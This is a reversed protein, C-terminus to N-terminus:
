KKQKHHHYATFCYSFKSFLKDIKKWYVSPFGEPFHLECINEVKAWILNVVRLVFLMLVLVKKNM